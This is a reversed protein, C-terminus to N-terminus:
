AQARVAGRRAARRPNLADNLGDGFLNLGLVVLAIAGGPFVALWWARRLFPQAQQLMLGWSVLAPDGLGLFSLGAELLIANAAQFSAEVVIIGAVNPLIARVIVRSDSAGLAHAAQVFERVRLSLVQARVLRATAPWSVIAIVAVVIGVTAGFLAVVVIALILRPTVQFLETVRMLLDDVPGGYYGSAAGVLVGVLTAGLAALFGVLLSTRAGYLMRSFVDRGLNDTGLFAGAEPARFSVTGIANPDAPAVVRALLAGAIFAAVVFAGFAAARYSSALRALASRERM